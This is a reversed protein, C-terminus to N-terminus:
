NLIYKKPNVNVGNLQVEYHLHPGTTRGTSGLLGIPDGRKVTQGRKILIAKLHGYRTVIGYGHDIVILNGLLMEEGVFTVMGDASAIVPTGEQNAIDLANHFVRKGTFPSKRYGFDSTVWGSSPQIAPTAALLNQKDQLGNILTDFGIEQNSSAMDLQGVREHMDRLLSSHDLTLPIKTELDESFAGGIGFFSEQEHTNQINAIIRIKEEFQNLSVLKSKIVNIEGALEQIHQRQGQITDEYGAIKVNLSGVDPAIRKLHTYDVVEWGLFIFCVALVISCIGVVSKPVTIQRATSGTNNM